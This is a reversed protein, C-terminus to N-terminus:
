RHKNAQRSLAAADPPTTWHAAVDSLDASEVWGGFAEAFAAAHDQNKFGVRFAVGPTGSCHNFEDAEIGNHDLWTRMDCMLDALDGVIYRLEVIYTM